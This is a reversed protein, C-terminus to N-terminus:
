RSSQHLLITRFFMVVRSSMSLMQRDRFGIWAALSLEADNSMARPVAAKECGSCSRSMSSAPASGNLSEDPMRVLQAAYDAVSL